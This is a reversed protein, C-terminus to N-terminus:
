PLQVPIWEEGVAIGSAYHRNPGLLTAGELLAASQFSQEQGLQVGAGVSVFPGLRGQNLRKGAIWLPPMLLVGRGFCVEGELHIAEPTPTRWPWHPFFPSGDVRGAMLDHHTQLFREHTGLDSWYPPSSLCHARIFCGESLMHPFIDHAIDLFGPRELYPLVGSSLVYAGMFHWPQTRAGGPGRGALRCIRGGEDVEVPNYTAGQPMPMVLLSADAGSALHEEVVSALEMAVVTDGNLVVWVDARLRRTLERLGGGTGLLVEEHSVVLGLGLREAEVRAVAEMKQALHHVNVGVERIGAKALLAMPFRLLPQGLLPIAPKPWRSTLAGLRRGEGACLVLGAAKM